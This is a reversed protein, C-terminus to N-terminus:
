AGIHTELAQLQDPTGIAILMTDGELRTEPGPNSIFEAEGIRLALILAGTESGIHADALTTGALPSNEPLRVEELRFKSPVTLRSWM